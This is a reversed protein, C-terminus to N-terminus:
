SIVIFEGETRMPVSSLPRSVPGSVPQGQDDFVAGHCPCRFVHKAGDWAVLCGLHTCSADFARPEGTPNILVVPTGNFDKYVAQDKHLSDLRVKVIQSDSLTAPLRLFSVVPYAVTGASAVTMGGICAKLFTRRGSADTSNPTRFGSDPIAREADGMGREANRIGCESNGTEVLPLETDRENM